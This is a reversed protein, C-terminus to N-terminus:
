GCCASSRGSPRKSGVSDGAASGTVTCAGFFRRNDVYGWPLVGDFDPGLSLEGIRVGVEYHRAADAARSDFVINGLHAHADLCRLDADCLDMLIKLAGRYDGADKLENSETIPDSDWDAPEAGPLVQEM